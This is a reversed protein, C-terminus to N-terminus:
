SKSRGFGMRTTAANVFSDLSTGKRAEALKDDAEQLDPGLDSRNADVRPQSAEAKTPKGSGAPAEAGKGSRIDHYAEFAALYDAPTVAKDYLEAAASYAEIVDAGYVREALTWSDSELRQQYEDDGDGADTAAAEAGAPKPGKGQRFLALEQAQKTITRQAEILREDTESGPQDTDEAGEELEDDPTDESPDPADEPPNQDKGAM